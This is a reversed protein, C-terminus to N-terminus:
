HIQDRTCETKSTCKRMNVYQKTYQKRKIVSLQSIIDAISSIYKSINNAQNYGYLAKLEIYRIKM